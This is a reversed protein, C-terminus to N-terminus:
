RSIPRATEQDLQGSDAYAFGQWGRGLSRDSAFDRNMAALEFRELRIAPRQAAMLLAPLLAILLNPIETYM